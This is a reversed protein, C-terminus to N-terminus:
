TTESSGTRRGQGSVEFYPSSDKLVQVRAAASNFIKTVKVEYDDVVTSNGLGLGATANFFRESWGPYKGVAPEPCEASVAAPALLLFAILM